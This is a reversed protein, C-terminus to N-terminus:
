FRVAYKIVQDPEDKILRFIDGAESLSVIPKIIGPATLKGQQMLSAIADYARQDTWRPYDRPPHGWGCGHPVVVNIRNHHWERGLWLGKSEGQYFGASCVTGGV